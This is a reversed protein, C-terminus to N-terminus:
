RSLRFFRKGVSADVTVQNNVVGPVPLWAAAPLNEAYQL